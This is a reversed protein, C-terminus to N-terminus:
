PQSNKTKSYLFGKGHCPITFTSEKLHSRSIYKVVMGFFSPLYKWDKGFIGILMDGFELSGIM